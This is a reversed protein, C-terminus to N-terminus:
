DLQLIKVLKNNVINEWTFMKLSNRINKENFYDKQKLIVELANEFGEASDDILIGCKESIVKKNEKTATGIVFLGSNGYEFTKTVPQIDYAPNIPVFSVGINADDFYKSLMFHPVRGHFHVVSDMQLDSVLNRLTNLEGPGGDGIIEYSIKENPHKSIFAKLGLITLELNRDVFTGVYLLKIESYNKKAFSIIDSGLPLIQVKSHKINLRHKVGDSVVTVLDFLNATKRVKNDHIDKEEQTGWVALTRIDLIMKKRPFLKKLIGCHPFYIVLIRGKFFAINYLSVLIFNIGRWFYSKSYPVYKVKVKNITKLSFNSEFSLFTVDYKDQLYECWKYSDTLMGLPTKNIILIKKMIM